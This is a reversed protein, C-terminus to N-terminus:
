YASAESLLHQDIDGTSAHCKKQCEPDIVSDIIVLDSLDANLLERHGIIFTATIRGGHYITNALGCAPGHQSRYTKVIVIESLRLYANGGGPAIEGGAVHV